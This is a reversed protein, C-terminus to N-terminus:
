PHTATAYFSWTGVPPQITLSATGLSNTVATGVAISNQNYFTVTLGTTADSVTTSLTLNDGVVINISSVTVASLTAQGAVTVDPSVPSQMYYLAVAVSVCAAVSLVTLAILLTQTIKL